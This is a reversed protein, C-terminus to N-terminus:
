VKDAALKANAEDTVANLDAVMEKMCDISQKTLSLHTDRQAFAPAVMCVGAGMVMWSATFNNM